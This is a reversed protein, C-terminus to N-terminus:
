KKSFYATLRNILRKARQRAEGQTDEVELLQSLTDLASLADVTNQVKEEFNRDLDKFEVNMLQTLLIANAQSVLNKRADQSVSMAVDYILSLKISKLDEIMRHPPLVKDDGSGLTDLVESLLNISGQAENAIKTNLTLAGKYAIDILGKNLNKILIKVQDESINVNGFTVSDLFAGSLVLKAVQDMTEMVGTLGETKKTVEGNGQSRGANEAKDATNEAAQAARKEDADKSANLAAQAKQLKDTAKKKAAEGVAMGLEKKAAAVAKQAEATENVFDGDKPSLQKGVATKGLELMGVSIEEVMGQYARLKQCLIVGKAKQLHQYLKRVQMITISDPMNEPSDLVQKLITEYKSFNKDQLINATTILPTLTKFVKEVNAQLELNIRVVPASAAQDFIEKYEELKALNEKARDIIATFGSVLDPDMDKLKSRTAIKGVLDNCEGIKDSIWSADITRAAGRAHEAKYLISKKFAVLQQEFDISEILRNLVGLQAADIQAITIDLRSEINAPLVQQKAEVLIQRDRAATNMLGPTKALTAQGVNWKNIITQIKKYAANAAGSANAKLDYDNGYISMLPDKAIAKQIRVFQIQADEVSVGVPYETAAVIASLIDQYKKLEKLGQLNATGNANVAMDYLTQNNTARLKLITSRALGIDVGDTSTKAVGSLGFASAIPSNPGYSPRPRGLAYALKSLVGNLAIYTRGFFSLIEFQAQEMDLLTNYVLSLQQQQAASVKSPNSPINRLNQIARLGNLYRVLTAPNVANGLNPGGSYGGGGYSGAGGAYSGTGGIFGDMGFGNKGGLSADPDLPNFPINKSDAQASMGYTISLLVIGLGCAFNRSAYFVKTLTVKKWSCTM